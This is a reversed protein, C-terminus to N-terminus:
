TGSHFPRLDDCVTPGTGETLLTRGTLWAAILWLTCGMSKSTQFPATKGSWCGYDNYNVKNTNM